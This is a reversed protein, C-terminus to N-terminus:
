EQAVQVHVDGLSVVLSCLRFHVSARVDRRVRNDGLYDLLNLLLQLSSNQFMLHYNVIVGIVPM